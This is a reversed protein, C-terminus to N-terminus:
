DRLLGARDQLEREFRAPETRRLQRLARPSEGPWHLALVAALMSGLAEEEFVGGREVFEDSDLAAGVLQRAVDWRLASLTAYAEASADGALVRAMAPHNENLVLRVGGLASADLDDSRLDLYWLAGPTFFPAGGFDAVDTPFRASEGELWTARRDRWLISGKARPSLADTREIDSAVVLTDLALRGGLEHGLMRVDLAIPGPTVPVVTIPGRMKTTSSTATVVVRLKSRDGLHCATRLADADVELVASLTLEALYDWAAVEDALATPGGPTHLQWSVSFRVADPPAVPFPAASTRM